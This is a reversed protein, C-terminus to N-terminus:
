FAENINFTFNPSDKTFGLDFRVNVRKKFEWRYGVGYNPLIEDYYIHRFDPFVNAMGVWFAIGSRGKIRQRLEVQGEMINNDRYRGEYYGRMRGMVGVQATMTWPVDGYNFLTHLEMALIGGKWVQRYACYTLDTYSFAYDNGFGSPYFMQEWRFFNGRFANLVFDRTDYTLNFGAGYSAVSKDQGELLVEKDFGFGNVWEIDAVPGLYVADSLRFLFSPKFQLKVREYDSKNADNSGNEYGIGWFKGPITYFGLQYDFRYKRHPLFNNGRVGVALMGSLSANAYVSVNSKPLLPDSRDWSYLGSATAGLGVSTAVSYSPGVLMSFDFPRDEHKNTNRLYRGIWKVPNYTKRGPVTDALVSDASYGTGCAAEEPQWGSDCFARASLSSLGCMLVTYVIKNRMGSKM